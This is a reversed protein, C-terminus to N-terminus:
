GVSGQKLELALWRDHCGRSIRGCGLKTSRSSNISPASSPSNSPQRACGGGSRYRRDPRRYGQDAAPSRAGTQHQQRGSLVCGPRNNRARAPLGEVRAKFGEQGEFACYVVPGGVVRCGRYDALSRASHMVLDFTWFSKGCKPPGWIVVIGTRPIVGRILYGTQQGPQIQDFPVLKFQEQGGSDHRDGGNLKREGAEDDLPPVYTRLTTVDDIVPFHAIMGASGLAWSPAYALQRAAMCTEVGEGIHLVDTAPGLKVAARHVVGLMRRDTKPWRQPQDLRIRHIAAVADDDISRFAAIL